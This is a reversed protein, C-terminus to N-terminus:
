FHELPLAMTMFGIRCGIAGGPRKSSVPTARTWRSSRSFFTFPAGTGYRGHCSRLLPSVRLCFAPLSPMNEKRLFGCCAISCSSDLAAWFYDATPRLLIAFALVIGCLVWPRLQKQMMGIIGLDFSIATCLIALTETLPLAVYNATFPCLAALLFAPKVAHNGITRRAIDAVVFCTIVDLLVQVWLVATFNGRGFLIFALALFAPYGPLRVLTPRITADDSISYIHYNLWNQAIDAYVKSDITVLRAFIVFGARLLVAAVITWVFFKLNKKLVAIVRM